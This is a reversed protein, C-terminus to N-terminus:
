KNVSELRAKRNALREEEKSMLGNKRDLDLVLPAAVFISSYTGVVVGILMAFAFGRTSAGGFIFLMLLVLFATLSTMITRSLTDNIAKNFISNRDLGMKKGFYERIRDFVIVTDNISYGIVTLIAAIFKQDIEMSFPVVDKLFSFVIIVILSDHILAVISGVSFQWRRFRVLIYLFIAIFGFIVAEVAGEKISDSITPLVKQSSLIHNDTFDKYTTGNPLYTGLGKYLTHEVVSDINEGQQDIMYATTIDLQRSNNVTKVIPFDG